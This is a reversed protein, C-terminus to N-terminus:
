KVTLAREATKHHPTIAQPLMAKIDAVEAKLQDLEATQSQLLANQAKLTEIQQQQDQIAKVLLPTLKSYDVVWPNTQANDGGPTVAFPYVKYLEQALFGTAQEGPNSIYNYDVVHMQLLDTLGYRSDTINEKLRKDSTTNYAVGGATRTISGVVASNIGFVQFRDGAAATTKTLFLNSGADRQVAIYADTGSSFMEAGDISANGNYLQGTYVGSVAKIPGNVHLKYGPATTGIGVNGSNDLITLRPVNFSDSPSAANAPASGATNGTMLYINKGGGAIVAAGPLPINPNNGLYGSWVGGAGMARYIIGFNGNIGAAPSRVVVQPISDDTGSITVRPGAVTATQGIAINGKNYFINTSTATAGSSDSVNRWPEDNVTVGGGSGSSSGCDTKVASFSAITISVTSANLVYLRLDIVDGAALDATYSVNLGLGQNIDVQMNTGIVLLAGNKFLGLARNTTTTPAANTFATATIMYKGAETVTFNSTAAGPSFVNGQDWEEGTFQVKTYVGGGPHVQSGSITRTGFGQCTAFRAQQWKTGDNYYIGPTVDSSTATNYVFMGQVHASLPAANTTATLAVRPLLAGKNTSEMELVANANITTPNDGVKVQAYGPTFASFLGLSLAPLLLRVKM